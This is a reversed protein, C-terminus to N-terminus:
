NIRLLGNEGRVSKVDLNYAMEENALLSVKKNTLATFLFRPLPIGGVGVKELVTELVSGNVQIKMSVVLPVFGVRGSVTLLNGEYTLAPDKLWKAKQKVITILNQVDLSAQPRLTNLKLLQLDQTELFLPINVIPDILDVRVDDFPVDKYSIKRASLTLQRLHGKATEMKDIPIARLEVGEAVANPFELQDLSLNILGVNIAPFPKPYQRYLIAESGDPLPWRATEEFTKQFWMPNRAIVESCEKHLRISGEPGLSGTKLLIFDAFEFMRRKSPGRFTIHSIERAKLSLDLTTSHFHPSNSVTLVYATRAKDVRLSDIKDIVENHKWDQRVPAHWGLVPVPFPEGRFFFTKEPFLHFVLFYLAIVINM